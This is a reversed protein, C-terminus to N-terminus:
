PGQPLQVYGQMTAQYQVAGNESGIERPPDGVYTLGVNQNIVAGPYDQALRAAYAQEFATRIAAVDAGAPVTVTLEQSFARQPGLEVPPTDPEGFPLDPLYRGIEGVSLMSVVLAVGAL